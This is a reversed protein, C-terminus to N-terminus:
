TLRVEDEEEDAEDGEEDDIIADPRSENDETEVIADENSRASSVSMPVFMARSGVPLAGQIVLPNFLFHSCIWRVLVNSFCELLADRSNDSTVSMDLEIMPESEETRRDGGGGDDDIEVFAM